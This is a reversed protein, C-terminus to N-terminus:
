GLPGDYPGRRTVAEAGWRAGTRVADALEQGVGLGYTLGAVFSDGAGYADAVPGPPEVSAWAGRQGDATEWTGGARGDTRVVARPPVPLDAVDFREEPDNASGAIADVQVGSAVVAALRRATSVVVPAARCAVVTRPDDGTFYVADVDELDDWGLPDDITPHVNPGVVFITRERAPDIVTLATTHPRPRRAARVDIGAGRLLRLSEDGVHDDGLATLFLVEAGNRALVVASVAGGGAPVSFPEVLHLIDGGVIPRDAEAFTVFEVHGVVAIRPPRPV